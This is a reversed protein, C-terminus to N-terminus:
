AADPFVQRVFRPHPAAIKAGNPMRAAPADASRPLWDQSM